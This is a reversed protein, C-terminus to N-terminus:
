IGLLPAAKEFGELAKQGVEGLHELESEAYKMSGKVTIKIAEAALSLTAIGESTRDIMKSVQESSPMANGIATSVKAGSTQITSSVSDATSIAATVMADSVKAGSNSVSHCLSKFATALIKLAEQGKSVLPPSLNSIRTTIANAASTARTKMANTASKATAQAIQSVVSIFKPSLNLNNFNM